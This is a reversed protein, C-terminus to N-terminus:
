ENKKHLIYGELKGINKSIESLKEFIRYKLDEIDTEIRDIHKSANLDLKDIKKTNDQIKKTNDEIMVLHELDIGFHTPQSHQTQAQTQPVAPRQRETPSESITHTIYAGAGLVITGIVTGVSTLFKKDRKM